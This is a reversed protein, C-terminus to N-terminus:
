IGDGITIYIDNSTDCVGSFYLNRSFTIIEISNPMILLSDRPTGYTAAVANAQAEAATAGWGIHVVETGPNVVRHDGFSKGDFKSLAEILVGTPASVAAPILYTKGFPNFSKIGSM